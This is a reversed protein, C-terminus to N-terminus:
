FDSPIANMDRLLILSEPDKQQCLRAQEKMYEIFQDVAPLHERDKLWFMMIQHAM